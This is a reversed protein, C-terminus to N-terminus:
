LPLSNSRFHLILRRCSKLNGIKALTRLPDFATILEVGLISRLQQAELKMPEAECDIGRTVM